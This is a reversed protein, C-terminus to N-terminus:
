LDAILARIKDALESTASGSAFESSRASGDIKRLAADLKDSAEDVDGSDILGGARAVMNILAQLRNAASRANPGAGSLTDTAVSNTIFDLIDRIKDSPSTGIGAGTGTLMVELSPNSFDTSNIRLVGTAAGEASPTFSVAIDVSGHIPDDLVSPLFVAGSPSQTIEFGASSGSSISLFLLVPAVGVNTVTVVKQASPTGMVVNGFNLSPPTVELTGQAYVCIASCFIATVLSGLKMFKSKMKLGKALHAKDYLM